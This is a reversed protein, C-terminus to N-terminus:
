IMLYAAFLEGFLVSIEAVYLLGTAAQNAKARACRMAFLALLFPLLLGWLIRMLTFILNGGPSWLNPIFTGAFNPELKRLLILTVVFIFARLGVAGMIIQTFRELHEFSPRRMILYWHGLIMGVTTAGLLVAGALVNADFFLTRDVQWGRVALTRGALPLLGFLLGVMGSLVLLSRGLEVKELEFCGYATTAGIITLGLFRVDWWGEGLVMKGLVLALAAAIAGLLSNFRFFSIRIERPSLLSTMLLSGVSLQTLVISLVQILRV